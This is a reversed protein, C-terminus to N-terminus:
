IITMPATDPRCFVVHRLLGSFNECPNVRFFYALESGSVIIKQVAQGKCAVLLGGYFVSTLPM